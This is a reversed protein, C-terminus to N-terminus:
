HKIKVEEYDNPNLGLGRLKDIEMTSDGGVYTGDHKNVFYRQYSGDVQFTEGSSDVVTREDNIYNLFTRHQADSSAMRDYYAKMSADGQAQIAAMRQQHLQASLQIAAMNRQHQATLQRGFAEIQAMREQHRRAQEAQWAPNAQYTRGMADLMDVYDKPDGTTAIGSVTVVWFPGSDSTTGIVLANMPKGNDTYRFSVKAVTPMMRIGMAAAKHRMKEEAEPDAETSGLEFGPLVGFKRKVYGPFYSTARVFPEIRMRPHYRAMDRHVPTAAAPSWYHPISPDGSYILVSGDPSITTAVMSHIDFVRVSYTRNHWGNPMGMTYANEVPDRMTVFDTTPPTSKPTTMQAQTTSSIPASPSPADADASDLARVMRELKSCATALTLTVLALTFSRVIPGM